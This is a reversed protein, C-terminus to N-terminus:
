YSLFSFLLIIVDYFINTFDKWEYPFIRFDLLNIYPPIWCFFLVTRKSTQYIRLAWLNVYKAKFNSINWIRPACKAFTHRKSHSRYFHQQMNYSVDLYLIRAFSGLKWLLQIFLRLTSTSIFPARASIYLDSQNLCRSLYEPCARARARTHGTFKDKRFFSSANYIHM